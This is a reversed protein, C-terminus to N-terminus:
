DLEGIFPIQEALSTTIAGHLYNEIQYFQAAQKVGTVKKLKKTYKAVLKEHAQRMKISESLLGDLEEEDMTLYDNVYQELLRFRDAAQAKRSEEYEDYVEWFATKDDNEDFQIFGNLIERKEMGYLQQLLKVEDSSTQAYGSFALGLLCLTTIIKM